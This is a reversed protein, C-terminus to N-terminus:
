NREKVLNPYRKKLYDVQAKLYDREEEISAFTTRSRGKIPSSIGKRTDFAEGNQYKRVWVKLQTRNRIGLMEAVVNYSASGELYERVAAMKFDETYQQFVQGKRAM